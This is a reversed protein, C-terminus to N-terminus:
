RHASATGGATAKAAAQELAPLDYGIVAVLKGDRGIVYNAPIAGVGFAAAGKQTPDHVVKFAPKMQTVFKRVSANGGEDISVSVVKLGRIGFKKQL